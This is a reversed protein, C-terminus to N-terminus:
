KILKKCDACKGEKTILADCCNSHLSNYEIEGVIDILIDYEDTNIHGDKLSQTAMKRAKDYEGEISLNSVFEKLHELVVNTKKSHELIVNEM